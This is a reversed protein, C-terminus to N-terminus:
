AWRHARSLTNDHWTYDTIEWNTPVGQKCFALWQIKDPDDKCTRTLIHVVLGTRTMMLRTTFISNCVPLEFTFGQMAANQVEKVFYSRRELHASLVDRIRQMKSSKAERLGQFRKGTLRLETIAQVDLVSVILGLMDFPLRDM